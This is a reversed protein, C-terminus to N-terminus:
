RPQWAALGERVRALAAQEPSAGDALAWTGTLAFTCHGHVTAILSRALSTVAAADAGLARAVEAVVIDTLVARTALDAASLTADEALRHAYIAAWRNPHARAFDFYGEVLAAIRDEEAAAALRARLHAAWDLFTRTNVATVLREYNGCVNHITGITYGIRKAVERASFRQLGDEAMVRGAADLVLAELEDRSHDSRRGM